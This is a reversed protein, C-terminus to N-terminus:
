GGDILVKLQGPTQALELAGAADSLPIRQTILPSLDISSTQLWSLANAMNGCRSGVVRLENIVIPSLEGSTEGSVTTKLVVCGQAATLALARSIGSASGTAEVVTEYQRAPDLDKELLTHAGAAAAISLKNPHHGILTVQRGSGLLALAILLGLKGDGLVAIESDATAVDLVHLAAALPEAFVAAENAVVDPVAVLCREPVTFRESFAGDRGLIGLVTRHPCHHEQGSECQACQGCHANIDAVVRRGVWHSDDAELVTGVFEHGLVGCYNMYGRSLQIDTDCVGALRLEVLAEGAPRKPDPYETQLQLTGDFCLALM